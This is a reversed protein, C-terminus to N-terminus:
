LGAPRTEKRQLRYGIKVLDAFSGAKMKTMVSARQAKITRETTGLQEAVEKNLKGDIIGHFVERERPTLSEYLSRDVRLQEWEAHQVEGRSLASEVTQLLLERKVPKTLFDAAGAKMARVSEPVSGQGSIFIVPLTKDNGKLAEQLELGSPGPLGVDLLVCEPRENRHALLFEAASAFGRADYGAAHLLRILGTRFSDDDDVVYILTKGPAGAVAPLNSSERVSV